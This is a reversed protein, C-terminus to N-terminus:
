HGTAPETPVTTGGNNNPLPTIPQVPKVPTSPTPQPTGSPPAMRTAALPTNSAVNAGNQGPQHSMGFAVALIVVVFVAAAIWGWVANAARADSDMYADRRYPDNPDRFESGSNWDSM